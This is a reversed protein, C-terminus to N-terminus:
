EKRIAVVEGIANRTVIVSQSPMVKQAFLHRVRDPNIEIPTSTLPKCCESPRSNLLLAKKVADRIIDEGFEGVYVNGGELEANAEKVVQEIEEETIMM